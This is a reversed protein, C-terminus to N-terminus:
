LGDGIDTDEGQDDIITTDADTSDRREEASFIRYGRKTSVIDHGQQRLTYIIRRVTSVPCDGISDSIQQATMGYELHGLLNLIRNYRGTPSPISM